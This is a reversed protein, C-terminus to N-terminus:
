QRAGSVEGAGGLLDITTQGILDARPVGFRRSAAALYPELAETVGLVGPPPSLTAADPGATLLPGEEEFQAAGGLRRWVVLAGAVSGEGAREAAALALDLADEGSGDAWLARAATGALHFRQADLFLAAPLALRLAADPEADLRLAAEALDLGALDRADGGRLVSEARDFCAQAHADAAPGGRARYCLGLWRWQNGVQRACEPRGEYHRLASWHQRLAAELDDADRTPWGRWLHVLGLARRCDGLLRDPAREHTLRTRAADLLVLARRFRMAREAGPPTRWGEVGTALGRNLRLVAAAWPDSAEGWVGAPLAAARDFSDHAGAVDQAELLVVGRNVLHLLALDDPLAEADLAAVSTRCAATARLRAAVVVAVIRAELALPGDALARVEDLPREADPFGAEAGVCLRNLRARQALFADSAASAVAFHAAARVTEGRRWAARGAELRLVALADADAEGTGAEFVLRELLSAATAPDTCALQGAEALAPTVHRGFRPAGLVPLLFSGAFGAALPSSRPSTM